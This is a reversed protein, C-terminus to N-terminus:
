FQLLSGVKRQDSHSGDFTRGVTFAPSPPSFSLGGVNSTPIYISIPM